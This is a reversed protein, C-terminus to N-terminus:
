LGAFKKIQKSRTELTTELGKVAKAIAEAEGAALAIRLDAHAAQLQDDDAAGDLLFSVVLGAEHYLRTSDEIDELSLGFEFVKALPRLGEGGRLEQFAFDRLDWPNAGAVNADVEPNPLFREVYLAAGYRLWRPLRKEAWFQQSFTALDVMDDPGVLLGVSRWSFDIADVFSQAASWRM